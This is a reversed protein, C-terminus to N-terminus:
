RKGRVAYLAFLSVLMGIAGFVRTFGPAFGFILTSVALCAVVAVAKPNFPNTRAVFYGSFCIVLVLPLVMAKILM